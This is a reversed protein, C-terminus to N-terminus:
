ILKRFLWFFKSSPHSYFFPKRFSVLFFLLLIWLTQLPVLDLNFSLLLAMSCLLFEHYFSFHSTWFVVVNSTDSVRSAVLRHPIWFVSTPPPHQHLLVSFAEHTPVLPVHARSYSRSAPAHQVRESAHHNSPSMPPFHHHLHGPIRHIPRYVLRCV